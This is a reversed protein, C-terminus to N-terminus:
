YGRRGPAALWEDFLAACEERLIGSVIEVRSGGLRKLETNSVTLENFGARQADAIAAGYVLRTCRAWHIAAFCMPCPECTSYITTGSLDITTLVRCAARITVVEAHATIDSEAWVRNHGRVVVASDRVLCAGFPTQGAALGARAAAIAQRMFAVDTM